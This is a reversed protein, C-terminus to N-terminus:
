GRPARQDVHDKGRLRAQRLRVRQRLLTDIRGSRRVVSGVHQRAHSTGHPLRTAKRPASLAASLGVARGEHRANANRPDEWPLAPSFAGSSHQSRRPHRPLIRTARPGRRPGQPGIMAAALRGGHPPVRPRRAAWDAVQTVAMFVNSGRDTGHTAPSSGQPGWEEAPLRGPSLRLRCPRIGPPQANKGTGSVWSAPPVVYGNSSRQVHSNTPASAALPLTAM